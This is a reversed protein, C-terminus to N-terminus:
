LQEIFSHISDLYYMLRSLKIINDIEDMNFQIIPVINLLCSLLLKEDKKLEVNVLYCESFCDLDFLIDPIKQYVNFLDYIPLDIKMKDISLLLKNKLCMHEYSFNQYTLCVRICSYNKTEELYQALYNKAHCLAYYIRYYNMVFMWQSPSRMAIKEFNSMMQDYYEIRECIIKNIDKQLTEFYTQNIKISYFSKNHLYSLTEFYFKIKLELLGSYVDDVYPMIYIFYHLYPTLLQHYKNYIINVFCDIHMAEIMVYVSEIKKDEVCKCVYYNENTKIKYVSKTLKIIGIVHIKYFEEIISNM